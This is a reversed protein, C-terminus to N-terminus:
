GRKLWDGSRILPYQERDDQAKLYIYFEYDPDYHRVYYGSATDELVDLKNELMAQSVEYVEGTIESTPNQFAYPYYARSLRLEYGQIRYDTYILRAENLLDHHHEGQRLTGYVFVLPM